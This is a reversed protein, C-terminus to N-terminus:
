KIPKYMVFDNMFFGNGIDIDEERIISFGERKYFYMAKNLRNVNLEIDTGGAETIEILIHGLLLKGFSKGQSAPEVYLKHLRYTSSGTIKPSWSGFGIAEDNVFAIIFKHHLHEIQDRLADMSYFLDLMYKMQEPSLIVKYAIPWTKFAISRVQHLDTATAKIIEVM